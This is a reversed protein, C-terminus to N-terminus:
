HFYLGLSLSSVSQLVILINRLWVVRRSILINTALRVLGLLVGRRYRDFELGNRQFCSFHSDGFLFYDLSSTSVCAHGTAEAVYGGTGM